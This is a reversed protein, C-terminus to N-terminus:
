VINSHEAAVSLQRDVLRQILWKSSGASNKVNQCILCLELKLHKPNPVLQVANSPGPTNNLM